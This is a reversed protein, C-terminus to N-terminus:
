YAAGAYRTQGDHMQGGAWRLANESIQLLTEVENLLADHYQALLQQNTESRAQAGYGTASLLGDGHNVVAARKRKYETFVAQMESLGRDYLPVMQAWAARALARDHAEDAPSPCGGEGDGCRYQQRLRRAIAEVEQAVRHEVAAIRAGFEAHESFAAAQVATYERFAAVAADVAAPEQAMRRADNLAQQQFRQQIKMAEAMQQAPPLSQLRAAERMMEAQLKEADAPTQGAGVGVLNSQTRIAADRQGQELEVRQAQLQARLHLWATGTIDGQGTIAAAAEAATAPLNPVQQHLRSVSVPAAWLPGCAAAVLVALIQLHRKM